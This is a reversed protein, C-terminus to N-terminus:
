QILSAVNTQWQKQITNNFQEDQFKLTISQILDDFKIGKCGLFTLNGKQIRADGGYIKGKYIRKFLQKDDIGDCILTIEYSLYSEVGHSLFSVGTTYDLSINITPAEQSDVVILGSNEISSKFFTLLEFKDDKSFTAPVFYKINVSSKKLSDIIYDITTIYFSEPYKNKFAKLSDTNTKYKFNYFQLSDIRISVSDCYVSQPYLRLYEEYKSIDNTEKVEFYALRYLIEKAEDTFESKSHKNIFEQLVIVNNEEKARQFDKETDSCSSNFILVAFLLLCLKKM